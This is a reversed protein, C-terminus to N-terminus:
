QYIISSSLQFKFMVLLVAKSENKSIHPSARFLVTGKFFFNTLALLLGKIFLVINHAILSWVNLIYSPSLPLPLPHAPRITKTPTMFYILCLNISWSINKLIKSPGCFIKQHEIKTIKNQLNLHNSCLIDLSTM